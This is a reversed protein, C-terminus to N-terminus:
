RVHISSEADNNYLNRHSKRLNQQPTQVHESSETNTFKYLKNYQSDERTLFNDYIKNGPSYLPPARRQTHPCSNKNTPESLVLTSALYM